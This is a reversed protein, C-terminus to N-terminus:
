VGAVGAQRLRRLFPTSTQQAWVLCRDEPNARMGEAAWHLWAPPVWALLYGGAGAGPAPEGVFLVWVDWPPAGHADFFGKSEHHTRRDSPETLPDFLVLRGGALHPLLRTPARGGRALLRRRALALELALAPWDPSAPDPWGAWTSQGILSRPELEWTRIPTLDASCLSVAEALRFRFVTVMQEWTLLLGDYEQWDHQQRALRRREDLDRRAGADPHTSRLLYDDRVLEARPDDRDALWDAYILRAAEDDPRALLDLLFADEETM